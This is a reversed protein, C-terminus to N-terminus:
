MSSGCRNVEFTASITCLGCFRTDKHWNQYYILIPGECDITAFPQALKLMHLNNLRTDIVWWLALAWGVTNSVWCFMIALNQRYKDRFKFLRHACFLSWSTPLAEPYDLNALVQWSYILQLCEFNMPPTIAIISQNSVADSNRHEQFAIFVSYQVFMPIM